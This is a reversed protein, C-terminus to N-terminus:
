TVRFFFGGGKCGEGIEAISLVVFLATPWNQSVASKCEMAGRRLFIGRQGEKRGEAGVNKSHGMREGDTYALLPLFLGRLSRVEMWLLM